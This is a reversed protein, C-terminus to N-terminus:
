SACLYEAIHLVIETSPKENGHHAGVLRVTPEPEEVTPNDTVLLAPIPHNNYSFGITDLKTIDPYTVALAHLVSCSQTYTHYTLLAAAPRAELQEPLVTVRWGAARLRAVTETDAYAKVFNDQADIVDLAFERQLAYVADHRSIEIRVVHDVPPLAALAVTILLVSLMM